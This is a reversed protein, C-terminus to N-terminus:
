GLERRIDEGLWYISCGIKLICLCPILIPSLVVALLGVLFSRMM